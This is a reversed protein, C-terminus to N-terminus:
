ISGFYVAETFSRYCRDGWGYVPDWQRLIFWPHAPKIILAPFGAPDTFKCVLEEDVFLGCPDGMLPLMPCRWFAAIEAPAQSPKHAALNM